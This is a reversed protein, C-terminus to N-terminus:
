VLKKVNELKNSIDIDDPKLKVVMKYSEIADKYNKVEMYLDGLKRYSTVDKPNKVIKNIYRKEMYQYYYSDNIDEDISVKNSIDEYFYGEELLQEMFSDVKKDSYEFETKTESVNGKIKSIDIIKKNDDLTQNEINFSRIKKPEDLFEKDLDSTYDNKDLIIDNNEEKIFSERIIKEKEIQKKRQSDKHKEISVFIYQRIKKYVKDLNLRIDSFFLNIKNNEEVYNNSINNSDLPNEINLIKDYETLSSEEYEEVNNTSVSSIKKIVFFLAISIFLISIIIIIASTM